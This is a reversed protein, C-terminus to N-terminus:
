HQQTFVYMDFITNAHLGLNYEEEIDKMLGTMLLKNERTNKGISYGGQVWIVSHPNDKVKAWQRNIRVSFIGDPVSQKIRARIDKAIEAVDTQEVRVEVTEVSIM